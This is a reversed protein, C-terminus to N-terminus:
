AMVGAALVIIMLTDLKWQLTLARQVDVASIEQKGDGFYPKEKMKGFYSTPGGLSVDLSLAMASIPYGANPSEHQAGYQWVKKLSTFKGFLIVILVATIRSPIYNVVDDLRASVKGFKEYRENRYGVMSDLTNIAKYVFLGVLGGILLYFLPAIVGDSLNEAYTEIAAKNIEPPSLNETDRSVLFRISQPDNLVNRVSGYLMKGAIGTSAIVGLVWPNNILSVPYVLALVCALLWFVLWFGRVISDHYFRKEFATILDGMLVVPHRIFKFEGFIRDTIYAILAIDFFM